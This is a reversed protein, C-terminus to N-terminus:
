HTACGDRNCKRTNREDLEDGYRLLQIESRLLRVRGVALNLRAWGGERALCAQIVLVKAPLARYNLSL